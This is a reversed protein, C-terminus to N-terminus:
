RCVCLPKGRLSRLSAYQFTEHSPDIRFDKGQAIEVPPCLKRAEYVLNGTKIGFKKAERSAALICGRETKYAAVVIPKGVLSPNYLQEVSAFCSNVDVYMISPDITNFGFM